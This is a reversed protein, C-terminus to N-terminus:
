VRMILVPMTAHNLVDEAVSGYILHSLGKYGHTFLVILDAKTDDAYRIIGDPITKAPRIVCEVDTIGKSQALDNVWARVGVPDRNDTPTMVYLFRNLGNEGMQFPYHQLTKLRDDVDIACVINEPWFHPVPQKVILVPCHAHRVIVEANSGLLLEELGSAGESAMVILDAPQHTVNRVLGQGNTLLTPTIEVDRYAPNTAFRKLTAEADQEIERYETITRDTMITAAEAYAPVPMPYAVSHLLQITAGQTRAIDVAVSLAVDTGLSLDTPVVITKMRTFQNPQYGM